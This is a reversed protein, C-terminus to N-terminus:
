SPNLGVPLNVSRTESKLVGRDFHISFTSHVDCLVDFVVADSNILKGRSANM